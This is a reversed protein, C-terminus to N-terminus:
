INRASIMVYERVSSVLCPQPWPGMWGEVRQGVEGLDAMKREARIIEESGSKHRVREM